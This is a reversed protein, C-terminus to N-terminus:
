KKEDEICGEEVLTDMLIHELLFFVEKANLDVGFVSEFEIGEAIRPEGCSCTVTAANTNQTHRNSEALCTSVLSLKGRLFLGRYSRGAFLCIREYRVFSWLEL